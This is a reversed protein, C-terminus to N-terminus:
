RMLAEPMHAQCGELRCAQRPPQIDSSAARAVEEIWAVVVVVDISEPSGRMMARECVMADCEFRCLTRRAPDWIRLLRGLLAPPRCLGREVGGRQAEGGGTRRSRFAPAHWLRSAPESVCRPMASTKEDGGKSPFRRAAGISASAISSAPPPPPPRDGDIVGAATPPCMISAADPGGVAMASPIASSPAMNWPPQLRRRATPYSAEDTTPMNPTAAIPADASCCRLAPPDPTPQISAQIPDISRDIHRPNFKYATSVKRRDRHM